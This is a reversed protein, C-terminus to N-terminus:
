VTFSSINLEERIKKFEKTIEKPTQTNNLNFIDKEIHSKTNLVEIEIINDKKYSLSLEERITEFEKEVSLLYKDWGKSHIIEYFVSM